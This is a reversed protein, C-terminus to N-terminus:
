RSRRSRPVDSVAPASPRVVFAALIRRWRARWASRPASAGCSRTSAPAHVGEATAASRRRALRTAAAHRNGQAALGQGGLALAPEGHQLITQAAQEEGTAVARTPAPATALEGPDLAAIALRGEGELAEAVGEADIGISQSTPHVDRKSGGIAQALRAVRSQTEPRSPSRAHAEIVPAVTTGRGAFGARCANRQTLAPGA